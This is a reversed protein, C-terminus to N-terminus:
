SRSYRDVRRVEHAARSTARPSRRASSAPPKLLPTEDLRASTTASSHCFLGCIAPKKAMHISEHFRSLCIDRALRHKAWASPMPLQASSTASPLCIAADGFRATDAGGFDLGTEANLHKVVLATLAVDYDQDLLFLGQKDAQTISASLAGGGGHPSLPSRYDYSDRNLLYAVPRYVLGETAFATQGVRAKLKESLTLELDESIEAVTRGASLQRMLEACSTSRVYLNLKIVQAQARGFARFNDDNSASWSDSSHSFPLLRGYVIRNEVSQETKIQLIWLQLACHRAGGSFLRALRGDYLLDDLGPARLGNLNKKRM